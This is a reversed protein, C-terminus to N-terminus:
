LRLNSFNNRFVLGLTRLLAWSMYHTFNVFNILSYGMNLQFRQATSHNHCLATVNNVRDSHFYCLGQQAVAVMDLVFAVRRRQTRKFQM